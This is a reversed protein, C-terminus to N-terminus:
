SESIFCSNPLNTAARLRQNLCCESCPFVAPLHTHFRETSEAGIFQALSDSLARHALLAIMRSTNFLVAPLVAIVWSFIPIFPGKRALLWPLPPMAYRTRYTVFLNEFFMVPLRRIIIEAGHGGQKTVPSALSEDYRANVNEVSRESVLVCPFLAPTMSRRSEMSNDAVNYDKKVQSAYRLREVTAARDDIFGSFITPASTDFRTVTM